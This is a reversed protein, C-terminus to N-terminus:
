RQLVKKSVSSSETVLKVIYFGKPLKKGKNDTGDWCVTINTNGNDEPLKLQNVLNGYLNYILLRKERNVDGKIQLFLNNDFPNPYAILDLHTHSKQTESIDAYLYSSLDFFEIIGLFYNRVTSISDIDVLNNIEISSGITKYDGHNYAIACASDTQGSNLIPFATGIPQLYYNNYPKDNYYGFKMQHTFQNDVGYISDYEFYYPANEAEINFLVQLSSMEEQSWAVRGEMYIKGGNQLYAALRNEEIVSLDANSFLGGLCIFVSMFGDYESPYQNRTTYKLQLSDLLNEIVPSSLHKPDLDLILIPIKGILLKRHNTSLVYDDLLVEIFVDIETGTPIHKNAKIQYFAQITDGVGLHDIILTENEIELANINDYLVIQIDNIEAHGYNSILFKLDAEEGPDLVGNQDDQIVIESIRFKPADVNMVIDSIWDKEDSSLINSVKISYQDPIGPWVTLILASDIYASQQPDLTGVSSHDKLISFNHDDSSFDMEINHYTEASINKVYFGVSVTDYYNISNDSGAYIDYDFILESPIQYRKRDTISNDDKVQVEIEYIKSDDPLYMSLLGSNDIEISTPLVQPPRYEFAINSVNGIQHFFSNRTYNIQDGNSIGSSWMIREPYTMEGYHTEIRGDSYLKVAFNLETENEYSEVSAKWIIEAHDEYNNFWVGDNNEEKLVLKSTYPAIIKNNKLMSEEGIFYPYPFPNDNFMIFGDVYVIISNITDNYFPFPFSLEVPVGFLPEEEFTLQNQHSQPLNLSIQNLNYPQIVEWSYPPNGGQATIQCSSYEGPIIASLDNTAIEVKEFSIRSVLSLTTVSNNEIIKPIEDSISESQNDFNVISFYMIEGNGTNLNDKEVVQIFYKADTGSEIYSLLPTVDLSIEITKSSEDNNFGQMYNDGGQYNFIPFDITHQPLNLSTDQSIGAIIKIKNRSNHKIKLRMTLVPDYEEKVEIVHVQNNWIGGKGYELAMTRYMILGYGDNNLSSNKYRFGGIEWDKMDIIGDDNIDENNTYRGDNNVDYRVSDNYGTITLAHGAPAIAEVIIPQGSEDSDDPLVDSNYYQLYFNAVGGYESGNLHDYLWNKLVSLGEESSLDIYYVERIRNRMANEYLEYGTMWRKEGGNFLGGYDELNPNGCDKLIDFSQLYSVGWGDGTNMFNWTFHVSQQNELINGPLERAHNLEYCFAYGVGSSQGCNWYPNQSFTPRFFPLEANNLKDPLDRDGRLIYEKPLKLEPIKSALLSDISKLSPENWYLERNQAFTTACILFVISWISLRLVYYSLHLKNM